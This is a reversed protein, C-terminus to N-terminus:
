AATRRRGFGVFGVLATGFLWLTAPIPVPALVLEADTVRLGDPSFDFKISTLGVIVLSADAQNTGPPWFDALPISPFKTETIEYENVINGDIGAGSRYSAVVNGGPSPRSGQVGDGFQIEATGDEDFKLTYVRDDVADIESLAARVTDQEPYTIEILVANAPSFLASVVSGSLLILAALISRINM